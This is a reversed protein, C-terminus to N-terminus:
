NKTDSFLDSPKEDPLYLGNVVLVKRMADRYKVGNNEYNMFMKYFKPYMDYVLQLRNDNKFQCGYGCFMCGTRKAGKNYIDSIPLNREKIYDWIDQETWISLPMSKTKRQGGFVNCQGQKIYMTQRMMSEDAMVGLIPYVKNDRGYKHFPKKKLEYCCKDSISFTENILFRYKKAIIGNYKTKGKLLGFARKAQVSNPSTQCSHIHQSTEKSILPFGWRDLVDMPKLKPYIIEVNEGNAKKDRVFKVIDPYENGTNCFVAKINPFVKRCLDLLVTSDKGGSFSVYVHELGLRGVFQDIVGLSHDVKQHLSWSQREKLDQLTM